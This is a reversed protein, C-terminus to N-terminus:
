QAMDEVSCAQERGWTLADLALSMKLPHIPPPLQHLAPLHSGALGSFTSSPSFIRRLHSTLWKEALCSTTVTM